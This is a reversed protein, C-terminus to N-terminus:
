LSGVHALLLIIVQIEHFSLPIALFSLPRATLSLDDDEVFNRRGQKLRGEGKYGTKVANGCLDANLSTNQAV